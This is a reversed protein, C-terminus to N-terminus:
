VFCPDGAVAKTSLTSSKKCFLEWKQCGAELQFSAYTNIAAQLLGPFSQIQKYNCCTIERHSDYRRVMYLLLTCVIFSVTEFIDENVATSKQTAIAEDM